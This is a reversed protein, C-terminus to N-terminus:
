AASGEIVLDYAALDTQWLRPDGDDITPFLAVNCYGGPPVRGLIVTGADALATTVEVADGGDCSGSVFLDITAGLEGADGDACTQDGAAVESAACPGDEADATVVVTSTVEAATTGDNRICVYLPSGEWYDNEAFVDPDAEIEAGLLTDTYELQDCPVDSGPAVLLQVTEESLEGSRIQNDEVVVQDTTLALLGPGLLASVLLGAGAVGGLRARRGVASM